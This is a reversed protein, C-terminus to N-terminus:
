FSYSHGLTITLERNRGSSLNKFLQIANLNFSHKKKLLYSVTTRLNTIQTDVEIGNSRNHSIGFSTNLTNDLFKNNIGLSPGWTTSEDRGITNLTANLAVSINMGKTPFGLSYALNANHFTSANGIRIVGDEANSVDALAYNMNLNQHIEEKKSLLYNININANQSLQKYELLQAEDDLLNDDNIDEFQNLRANTFTNFNSYSATITFIESPNYSLNLSGVTRKSTQQRQNNLDDRQYGINLVVNMTNDFSKTSGNLTISELDNNFFYAGLTEYGPEVREYALGINSNRVGYDLGARIASFYETSARNSLFLGTLNRNGGSLADARTDQTIGSSAYEARVELDELIKVGGEISIVMNEKPTIQREDPVASISNVNDKM